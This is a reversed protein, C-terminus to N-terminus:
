ADEDYSERERDHARRFSIIWFTEGRMTFVVVYAKRDAGEVLAQFRDEGYDKRRDRRIAATTWNLM